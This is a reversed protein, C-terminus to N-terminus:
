IDKALIHVKDSNLTHSAYRVIFATPGLQSSHIEALYWIFSRKGPYTAKHSTSLFQPLRPTGKLVGTSSIVKIFM